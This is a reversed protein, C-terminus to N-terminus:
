MEKRYYIKGAPVDYIETVAGDPNLNHEKTYKNLAPYVKMLSAMVSMKGKYPFETVLYEKEPLVKRKLNEPLEPLRSTDTHEIICGAESRLKSKEVKQPNDYFIGFGKFTEIQYDNKLRYYIDDMAGASQKYDGTLSHYVVTEGGQVKKYVTVKSFGGLWAYGALLAFILLVIVVILIKMMKM